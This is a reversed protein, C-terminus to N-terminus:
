DRILGRILGLNLNEGFIADYARNGEVMMCLFLFMQHTTESFIDLIGMNQCKNGRIGPNINKEFIRAMDSKKSYQVGLRMCFKM